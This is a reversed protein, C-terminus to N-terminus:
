RSGHSGRGFNEPLTKLLSAPPYSKPIMGKTSDAYMRCASSNEYFAEAFLATYIADRIVRYAEGELTQFPVDTTSYVGCLKHRRLESTVSTTLYSARRQLEDTLKRKPLKPRPSEFRERRAAGGEVLMLFQDRLERTLEDNLTMGRLVQGLYTMVAVRWLPDEHEYILKMSSTAGELEGGALELGVLFAPAHPGRWSQRAELRRYAKRAKELDGSQLHPVAQEFIEAPEERSLRLLTPVGDAAIRELEGRCIREHAPRGTAEIEGLKILSRVHEYTLGIEDAVVAVPLEDYEGPCDLM